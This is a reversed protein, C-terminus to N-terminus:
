AVYHSTPQHQWIYARRGITNNITTINNHYYVTYIHRGFASSSLMRIISLPSSPRQVIHPPRNLCVRLYMITSPIFSTTNLVACRPQRFIIARILCRCRSIVSKSHCIHNIFTPFSPLYGVFMLYFSYIVPFLM